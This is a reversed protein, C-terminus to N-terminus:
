RPDYWLIRWLCSVPPEQAAELVLLSAREHACHGLVRPQLTQMSVRDRGGGRAGAGARSPKIRRRPAAETCRWGLASKYGSLGDGPAAEPGLRQGHFRWLRRLSERM